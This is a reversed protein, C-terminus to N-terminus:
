HEQCEVACRTLEVVFLLLLILDRRALNKKREGNKKKKQLTKKNAGKKETATTRYFILRRSFFFPSQFNREYHFRLCFYLLTAAKKYVCLMFRQTGNQTVVQSKYSIREEGTVQMLFETENNRKEQQTTKTRQTATSNTAQMHNSAHPQKCTTAQMHNGAQILPVLAQLMTHTCTYTHAIGTHQVIHAGLPWKVLDLLFVNTNVQENGKM